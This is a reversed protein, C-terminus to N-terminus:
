SSAGQADIGLKALLSSLLGAAFDYQKAATDFSGLNYSELSLEVATIFGSGNKTIAKSAPTATRVSTRIDEQIRPWEQYAFKQVLSAGDGNEAKLGLWM